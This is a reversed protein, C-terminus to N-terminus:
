HGACVTVSVVSFSDELLLKVNYIEEEKLNNCSIYFLLQHFVDINSKLVVFHFQHQSLFSAALNLYLM